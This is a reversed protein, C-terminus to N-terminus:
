EGKLLEKAIENKSSYIKELQRFLIQYHVLSTGIKMCKCESEDSIVIDDAFASFKYKSIRVNFIIKKGCCHCTTTYRKVEM